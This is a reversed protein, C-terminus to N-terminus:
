TQRHHGTWAWCGSASPGACFRQAPKCRCAVPAAAPSAAGTLPKCSSSSPRMGPSVLAVWDVTAAQAPKAPAFPQPSPAQGAVPASAPKQQSTGAQENLVALSERLPVGHLFAEYLQIVAERIDELHQSEWPYPLLLQHREGDGARATINLRTQGRFSSLTWGRRCGRMQLAHSVAGRLLAEWGQGSVM